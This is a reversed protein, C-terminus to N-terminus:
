LPEKEEYGNVLGLGKQQRQAHYEQLKQYCEPHLWLFGIFSEIARITPLTLYHEMAEAEQDINCQSGLVRLFERLIGNREVLFKGLFRGKDTLVIERYREYRLYHQEDLRRIANSVSPLSVDLRLAIDSVRISEQSQSLRYIEELYDELSPSLM